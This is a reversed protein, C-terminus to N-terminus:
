RPHTFHTYPHTKSNRLSHDLLHLVQAAHSLGDDRTPIPCNPTPRAAGHSFWDDRTPSPHLTHPPPDQQGMVSAMTKPPQLTHPLREHQGTTPPAAVATCSLSSLSPCVQKCTTAAPRGLSFISSHAARCCACMSLPLCTHPAPNRPTPLTGCPQHHPPTTGLHWAAAGGLRSSTRARLSTMFCAEWGKVPMQPLMKVATCTVVPM